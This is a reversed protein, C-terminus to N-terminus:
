VEEEEAGMQESSTESNVVAAQLAATLDILKGGIEPSAIDEPGLVKFDTDIFCMVITWLAEIQSQKDALSIDPNDFFPLWDEWDLHLSPKPPPTPPMDTM